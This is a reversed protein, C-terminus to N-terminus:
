ERWRNEEGPHNLLRHRPGEPEEAPNSGFFSPTSAVLQGEALTFNLSLHHGEVRWGWTASDSPEGFVSVYYLEADRAPGKGQELEKLVAELSMITTAKM